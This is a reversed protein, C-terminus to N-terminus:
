SNALFSVAVGLPDAAGSAFTCVGGQKQIQWEDGRRAIQADPHDRALLKIVGYVLAAELEDERYGVRQLRRMLQHFRRLPHKNV